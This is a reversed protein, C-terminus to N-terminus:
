LGLANRDLDFTAFKGLIADSNLCFYDSLYQRYLNQKYFGSVKMSLNDISLVYDDGFIYVFERFKRMKALNVYNTINSDLVDDALAFAHLYLECAFLMIDRKGFMTYVNIDNTHESHQKTKYERICVKCGSDYPLCITNSKLADCIKKFNFYTIDYIFPLKIIADYTYNNDQEFQKILLSAKYLAYLDANEYFSADDKQQHINFFKIGLLSFEPRHKELDDIELSTPYYTNTLLNVDFNENINLSGTEGTYTRPGKRRWTFIFIDCYPNDIFIKHSEIYKYYDKTHGSLIIAFKPIKTNLNYKALKFLRVFPIHLLLRKGELSFYLILLWSFFDIKRTLDRGTWENWYEIELNNPIRQLILEWTNKIALRNYVSKTLWRYLDPLIGIDNLAKLFSIVTEELTFKSIISINTYNTNIIGYIIQTELYWKWLIYEQYEHAWELLRTMSYTYTDLYSDDWTIIDAVLIHDIKLLKAVLSIHAGHNGTVIINIM